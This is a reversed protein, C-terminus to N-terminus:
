SPRGKGGGRRQSLPHKPVQPPRGRAAPPAVRPEGKVPVDRLIRAGEPRKGTGAPQFLPILHKKSNGILDERGM